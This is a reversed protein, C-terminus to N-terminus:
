IGLMKRTNKFNERSNGYKAPVLMGNSRRIYKETKGTKKNKAMVFKETVRRSSGQRKFPETKPGCTYTATCPAYTTTCAVEEPGAQVCANDSDQQDDDSGCQASTGAIFACGAAATCDDEALDACPPSPEIRTCTAASAEVGAAPDAAVAPTFACGVDATCATEDLGTCATEDLRACSPDVAARWQCQRRFGVDGGGDECGAPYAGVSQCGTFKSCLANAGPPGAVLSECGTIFEAAPSLDPCVTEKKGNIMIVVILIVLLIVIMVIMGKKLAPNEM